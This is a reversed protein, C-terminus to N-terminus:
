IHCIQASIVKFDQDKFVIEVEYSLYSVSNQDSHMAEALEPSLGKLRIDKTSRLNIRFSGDAEKHHRYVTVASAPCNPTVPPTMKTGAETLAGIVGQYILPAVSSFQDGYYKELMNFEKLLEGGAYHVTSAACGRKFDLKVSLEVNEPPTTFDENLILKLEDTDLQTKEVVVETNQVYFRSFNKGDGWDIEDDNLRWEKSHEEIRFFAQLRYEVPLETRKYSRIECEKSIVLVGQFFYTDPSYKKRLATLQTQRLEAPETEPTINYDGCIAASEGACSATDNHQSEPKCKLGEDVIASTAPIKNM